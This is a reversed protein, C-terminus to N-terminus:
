RSRSPRGTSRRSRRGPWSRWTSPCARARGSCRSGSGSTSPLATAVADIMAEADEDELPALEIREVPGEALLPALGGPSRATFVLLLGPPRTAVLQGLVALSSPDADPVDDILLVAPEAAALRAVWEVLLGASVRGAQAPGPGAAAPPRRPWASCRAWCAVAEQDM